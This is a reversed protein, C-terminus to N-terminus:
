LRAVKRAEIKKSCIWVRCLLAFFRRIIIFMLVTVTAVNLCYYIQTYHVGVYKFLICTYFVGDWLGCNRRRVYMIGYCSTKGGIVVTCM